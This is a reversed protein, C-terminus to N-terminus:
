HIVVLSFTQLFTISWACHRTLVEIFIVIHPCNKHSLTRCSNKNNNKNKPSKQTQEGTGEVMNQEM